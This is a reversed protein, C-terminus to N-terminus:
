STSTTTAAARRATQTVASQARAQADRRSQTSFPGLLTRHYKAKVGRPMRSDRVLQRHVRVLGADVLEGYGREATRESFGYWQQFREVAVSFVATTSTEKLAVLLVALGPLRLQDLVDDTFLEHPVTMYLRLDPDDDEGTPPTWERGSGDELLPFLEVTMGHEVV